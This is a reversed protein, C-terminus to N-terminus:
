RSSAKAQEIKNPAPVLPEWEVKAAGLLTGTAYALDVLAIQYETLARIESSKANAFNTQAELVETTTNLGIEFQRVEAEYLRGELIASQRSALIRQWATELRDAANLVDLKIVQERNNQSALLQRRYYFAQKLNSKAAQNGLPIQLQLGLRHDEFNKDFLMDYSDDRKSGLGNINYTYDLTVLPLAQNRAFDITSISAAIQLELELMEMRNELAFVTLRDTDLDYHLPDPDTTPILMTPSRMDLGAKNIVRKLTRQSDRLNNEAIIIAELRQAAGAEARTVEIQAREGAAVFRRARELQTNALEYEKKRVELVRGSAYLIWYARDAAAIVRIAELKTQADVIQQNYKELRISHMNARKGAGKLLPQSISFSLDSSYSPNPDVWPSDTRYRGDFLNLSVAAGTALPQTIGARASTYTEQEGELGSYSPTDTKSYAMDVNFTAEFKALEANTREAAITPAILQTKLELNNNLALSRCQELSIELEKEYDTDAAPEVTEEAKEMKEINLPQIQRTKEPPTTIEYFDEHYLDEECGAFLM